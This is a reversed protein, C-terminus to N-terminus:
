RGRADAATGGSAAAHSRLRDSFRRAAAPRDPHVRMPRAEPRAAAARRPLRARQRFARRGRRGVLAVVATGIPNPRAPSRLSFTGQTQGDDAPTPGPRLRSGPCGISFRSGSSIDEVGDLAAAWPENVEIRCIPGDLRGQRPCEAAVDVAHPHNRNFTLGAGFRPADRCVRCARADRTSPTWPPRHIM